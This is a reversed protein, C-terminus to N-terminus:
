RCRLFGRTVGGATYAGVIDGSENIGLANTSTAGPVDITSYVDQSLLFGHTVGNSTFEGVIERQSNIGRAGTGSAGPVDVTTFEEGSLVFAM